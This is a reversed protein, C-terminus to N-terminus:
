FKIDMNKKEGLTGNNESYYWLNNEKFVIANKDKVLFVDSVATPLLILVVKTKSNILEYGNGISKTDYIETSNESAEAQEIKKLVTNKKAEDEVKSSINNEEKLLEVKNREINLTENKPIEVETKPTYKYELNLISAFADRLAESYAKGFEKERSEGEKSKFILNGSCDKLLIELKTKFLGGKVKKVDTYLALCGNEVLDDPLKEEDFYVDFGEQKLLFRTLTNVRYQDKGKLFEFQLPVVVYKYDNISSQSQGKVAFSILIFLIIIRKM